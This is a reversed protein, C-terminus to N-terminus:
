ISSSLNYIPILVSALLFAVGLGLAVIMIPEILDVLTDVANVVEREYFKALTDLIRGLEGTEEGVKAMQVIIGPIQEFKSFSDSLTAGGKVSELSSLLITQYVKNDVVDATLELARLMPVGSTLLTNMNDAIRSLYLKKYLTGIYPVRLQFESLAYSGKETKSYKIIFFVGIATAIVLFIGYDRLFNSINIVIQTYIPVAQGSDTIISTIKPIVVTFMVAMVSIFTFVVFAPYILANKAKSSVAFSRDLYDALYTFTLDLKGSEEGAKVMNVYFNSFVKPHKSLAKSIATGGQLDSSIEVLVLGLAPNDAQDSLMRFVRLASVQASFLTAIQRSLIVVDKNKVRNFFSFTQNFGKKEENISVIVLGRKQISAIASDTSVADVSGSIQGGKPDIAKYNFLM